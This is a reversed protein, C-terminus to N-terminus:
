RCFGEKLPRKAEKERWLRLREKAAQARAPTDFWWLGLHAAEDHSHVVIAGGDPHYKWKPYVQRAPGHIKSVTATLTGDQLRVVDTWEDGLRARGIVTGERIRAFMDARALDADTQQYQNWRGEGRMKAPQPKFGLTEPSNGALRISRIEAQRKAEELREWEAYERDYTTERGGAYPRRRPRRTGIPYRRTTKRGTREVRARYKREQEERVMRELKETAKQARIAIAEQNLYGGYCASISGCWRIALETDWHKIRPWVKQWEAQAKLAQFWNPFMISGGGHLTFGAVPPPPPPKPVPRKPKWKPKPPKPKEFAGPWPTEWHFAVQPAIMLNDIGPHRRDSALRKLRHTVGNGLHAQCVENLEELTPWFDEHVRGNRAAWYVAASV